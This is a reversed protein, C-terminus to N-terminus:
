EWIRERFTWRKNLVFNGFAAVTVAAFLALPYVTDHVDVFYYVLGLQALAGFSSFLVFKGYQVLTTKSGFDRDEFTWIKNLLFNSTMSVAIGAMNAHLYWTDIFGLTLVFSTLYNAGLGSAGVTFFRGAKSVFRVPARGEKPRAGRGYRYLKWVARLYDLATSAGLKSTGRARNQFTYPIEKVRAGRAKVLLELLMKYGIADFEINRLVDRRCAFFGSMPDQQRVGLGVNAIKTAGRSMIRRKLPWDEVAGGAVYRSAVVIDYNERRLTDIMKPILTPPHSLDCDMVVISEGTSSRIGDLIASGLGKKLKRRVVRLYFRGGNKEKKLGEAIRATGDPSDDDVVVVETEHSGNISKELLEVVQAINQSENYTPIM